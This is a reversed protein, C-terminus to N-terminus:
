HHHGGGGGGGSRYSDCGTVSLFGLAAIIAVIVPLIKFSMRKGKNVSNSM